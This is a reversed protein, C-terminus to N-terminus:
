ASEIAEVSAIPVRATVISVRSATDPSSEAIEAESLGAEDDAREILVSFVYDEGTQTFGDGWLTLRTGTKLTVSWRDLSTLIRM